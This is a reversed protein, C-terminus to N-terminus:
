EEDSTPYRIVSTWEKAKIQSPLTEPVDVEGTVLNVNAVRTLEVAPKGPCLRFIRPLQTCLLQKKGTSKDRELSCTYQVIEALRCHSPSPDM